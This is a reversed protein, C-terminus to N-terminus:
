THVQIINITMWFKIELELWENWKRRDLIEEVYNKTEIPKGRMM